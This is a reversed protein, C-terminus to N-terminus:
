RKHKMFFNTSLDRFDMHDRQLSLLILLRSQCSHSMVATTMQQNDPSLSIIPDEHVRACGSCLGQMADLCVTKQDVKQEPSVRMCARLLNEPGPPM